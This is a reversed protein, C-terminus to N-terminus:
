RKRRARPGSATALARGIAISELAAHYIFTEVSYYGESSLYQHFYRRAIKRANKRDSVFKPNTEVWGVGGIKKTTKRRKKM